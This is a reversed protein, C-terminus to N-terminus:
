AGEAARAARVAEKHERHWRKRAADSPLTPAREGCECRPWGPYLRLVHGALLLPAKRTM